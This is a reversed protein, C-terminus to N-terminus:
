FFIFYIPKMLPEQQFDGLMSIKVDIWFGDVSKFGSVSTLLYECIVKGDVHFRRTKENKM